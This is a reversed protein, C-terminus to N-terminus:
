VKMDFHAGVPNLRKEDQEDKSEAEKKKKKRNKNKSADPDRDNKVKKMDSRETQLIRQKNKASQLKSEQQAHILEQDQKNIVSQKAPHIDQTKHVVIQMDAPRISM